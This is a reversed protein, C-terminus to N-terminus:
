LKDPTDTNDADGFVISVLPLVLRDVVCIQSEEKEIENCDMGLLYGIGLCRQADLGCYERTPQTSKWEMGYEADFVRVYTRVRRTDVTRGSVQFHVSPCLNYESCRRVDSTASHLTGTVPTYPNLLSWPYSPRMDCVRAHWHGDKHLWTKTVMLKVAETDSGGNDTIEAQADCINYETYSYTKDCPHEFTKLIALDQLTQAQARDTHHVVSDRVEIINNTVPKGATTSDYHFWNRFNCMGNAAAFDPISQFLSLKHMTGECGSHAFLQVDADENAENSISIMPESCYGQGSCLLGEACHSHEYCTNDEVCVGTQAQGKVCKLSKSTSVCDQDTICVRLDPYRCGAPLNTGKSSLFVGSSEEYNPVYVWHPWTTDLLQQARQRDEHLSDEWLAWARVIGVTHQQLVDAPHGQGRFTTDTDDKSAKGQLWMEDLSVPPAPIPVATDAQAEPNWKSEM